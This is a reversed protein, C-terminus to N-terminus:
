QSGGESWPFLHFAMQKKIYRSEIYGMSAYLVAVLLVILSPALTFVGWCYWALLCAVSHLISINLVSAVLLARDLLFAKKSFVYLIHSQIGSNDKTLIEDKWMYQPDFTQQNEIELEALEQSSLLMIYDGVVISYQRIM